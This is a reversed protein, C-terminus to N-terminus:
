RGAMRDVISQIRPVLERYEAVARMAEAPFTKETNAFRAIQNMNTAIGAIDRRLRYLEVIADKRDTPTESQGALASEALLRPVTVGALIARAELRTAEDPSVYVSYRKSRVMGVRRTRRRREADRGTEDSM